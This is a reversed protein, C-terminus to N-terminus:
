VLLSGSNMDPIEHVGASSWAAKIQNRLPYKRGTSSVSETRIPGGVGHIETDVSKEDHHRETKRFYLLFGKYSWKPDNVLRAM